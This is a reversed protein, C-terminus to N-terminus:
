AYCAIEVHMLLCAAALHEAGSPIPFMVSTAARPRREEACRASMYALSAASATSVIVQLALGKIAPRYKVRALRYSCSETARM